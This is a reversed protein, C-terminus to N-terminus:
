VSVTFKCMRAFYQNMGDDSSTESRGSPQEEKGAM